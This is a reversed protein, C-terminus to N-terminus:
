FQAFTVLAEQPSGFDSQLHWHHRLEAGFPRTLAPLHQSPRGQVLASIYPCVGSAEWLAIELNCYSKEETGGGRRRKSERKTM